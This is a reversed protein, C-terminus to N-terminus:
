CGMNQIDSSPKQMNIRDMLLCKNHNYMCLIFSFNVGWGVFHLDVGFFLLCINYLYLSELAHNGVHM